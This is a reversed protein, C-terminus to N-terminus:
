NTEAPVEVLEAADIWRAFLSLATLQELATQEDLEVEENPLHGVPNRIARFCGSGFEMVGGQMSKATKEDAIGTFRLRPKGPTPLGEGFAQKVLDSESVDRRSVRSQLLSNVAKSAALVAEHRHGTSWQAAAAQWILPHLSGATIAPSSDWGGLNKSVEEQVALRALLTKAASVESFYMYIKDAPNEDRWNPYLRNLISHVRAVVAYADEIGCQPAYFTSGPRLGPILEEVPELQACAQRLTEQVWEINVGKLQM